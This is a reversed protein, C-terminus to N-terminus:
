QEAAWADIMAKAVPGAVRGGTQEGIEPDAEVIVAVAFDPQLVTEGAFAIIWAHTADVGSALQATGTKAGVVLGPTQLGQATGGDVVGVMAERLLAATSPNIAERWTEPEAENSVNGQSDVLRTVLYPEPVAGDNAIGAAVLAM